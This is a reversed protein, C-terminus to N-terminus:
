TAIPRNSLTTSSNVAKPIMANCDTSLLVDLDVSRDHGDTKNDPEVLRVNKQIVEYILAIMEIVM